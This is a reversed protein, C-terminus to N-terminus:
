HRDPTHRRPPLLASLGAVAAELDDSRVPACGASFAALHESGASAIRGAAQSTAGDRALLRRAAVGEHAIMEAGAVKGPFAEQLAKLGPVDVVAVAPRGARFASIIAQLPVAYRHAAYITEAILAGEAVAGDFTPRDLFMYDDGPVEGVRPARTTATVIRVVDPRVQTLRRVATTKGVGSPGCVALIM